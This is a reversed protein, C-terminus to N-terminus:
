LRLLHTPITPQKSAQDLFFVGLGVKIGHHHHSRTQDLKDFKNFFLISSLPYIKSSLYADNLANSCATCCAEEIHGKRTLLEIENAFCKSFRLLLGMILDV